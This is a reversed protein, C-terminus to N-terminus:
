NKSLCSQYINQQQNAYREWSLEVSWQKNAQGMSERKQPNSLLELMANAIQDVDGEPVILGTQGQKIADPVGGHETGIVPCGYTGAEIYVFGFGEFQDTEEVPTLLFLCATKYANELAEKSVRGHFIVDKINQEKIIEKLHEVYNKNLLSGIIHYEADPFTAKIKGFAPISHHFGKRKKLMAVSLIKPKTSHTSADIDNQKKSPTGLLVVENPTGSMDKGFRNQMRQLTGNSIPCLYTASQLIRGYLLRDVRNQHWKVGYTGAITIVHPCKFKRAFWHGIMGTPYAELSHVLDIDTFSTQKVQWYSNLWIPIKKVDRPSVDQVIPLVEKPVNPLLEDAAELDKPAIILHPKVQHYTSMANIIGIVLTRWGSPARLFPAIFLVKM